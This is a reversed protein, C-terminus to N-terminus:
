AEGVRAPDHRARTLKRVLIHCPELKNPDAFARCSVLEQRPWPEYGLHLYLKEATLNDIGVGLAVRNVKARNHPLWEELWGEAAKILETGYGRGRQDDRVELNMLLPVGPLHERIEPEEAKELWLYVVGVPRGAQWAVLLHGRKAQAHHRRFRDYFLAGHGFERVLATLDAENRAARIELSNM